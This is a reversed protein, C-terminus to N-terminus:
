WGRLSRVGLYRTCGFGSGQVNPSLPVQAIASRNCEALFPLVEALIAHDRVTWLFYLQTPLALQDRSNLGDSYRAGSGRRDGDAQSETVSLETPIMAMSHCIDQLLSLMPVFGTGAGTCLVGTLALQFSTSPVAVM